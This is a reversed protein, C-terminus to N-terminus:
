RCGGGGRGIRAGVDRLRRILHRCQIKRKWGFTEAQVKRKGRSRRYIGSGKQLRRRGDSIAKTPRM